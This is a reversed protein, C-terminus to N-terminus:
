GLNFINWNFLVYIKLKERIAAMCVTFTLASKESKAHLANFLARKCQTPHLGTITGRGTAGNGFPM